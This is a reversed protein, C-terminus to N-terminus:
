GTHRWVLSYAWPSSTIEASERGVEVREPRWWREEMERVAFEEGPHLDAGEGVEGGEGGEVHPCVHQLLHLLVAEAGEV